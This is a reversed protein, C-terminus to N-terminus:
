FGCKSFILFVSLCDMMLKDIMVANACDNEERQGMLMTPYTRVAPLKYLRLAPLPTLNYGGLPRM